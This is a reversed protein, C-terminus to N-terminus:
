SASLKICLVRMNSLLEELVECHEDPLAKYLTGDSKMYGSPAKFELFRDPPVVFYLVRNQVTPFRKLVDLVGQLKMDHKNSVTMQFMHLTHKRAFFSDISQTIKSVPWYYVNSQWVKHDPKFRATACQKLTMETTITGSRAKFSGGAILARHAVSEFMIGRVAGFSPDRILAYKVQEHENLLELREAVKTAIWDSAFRYPTPEFNANADVHSLRHM